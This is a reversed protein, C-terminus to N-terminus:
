VGLPRDKGYNIGGKPKAIVNAGDSGIVDVFIKGTLWPKVDRTQKAIEPRQRIALYSGIAIAEFRTRPTATGGDARRFGFPFAHAVFAMADVFRQRYASVEEPNEAFRGNTKKAYKFPFDSPRDHYGELGGEYALGDGYRITWHNKHQECLPIPVRRRKTFAIRIFWPTFRAWYPIWAFQKVPRAAAAAGCKMCVDPLADADLDYFDLRVDGM